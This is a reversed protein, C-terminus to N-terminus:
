MKNENMEKSGDIKKEFAKIAVNVLLFSVFILAPWSLYWVISILYTNAMTTYM